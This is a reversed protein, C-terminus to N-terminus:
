GTRSAAQLKVVARLVDVHMARTKSGHQASETIHIRQGPPLIACTARVTHAYRALRGNGLCKPSPQVDPLMRLHRANHLVLNAPHEM